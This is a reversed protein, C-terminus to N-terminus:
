ALDRDEFLLLGVILAIATYILAFGVNLVGFFLFVLGTFLGWPMTVLYHYFNDAQRGGSRRANFSGDQNMLRGQTTATSGFGLERESTRNFIHKLM